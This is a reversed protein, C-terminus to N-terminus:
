QTIRVALRSTWPDMRTVSAPSFERSERILSFYRSTFLVSTEASERASNTLLVGLMTLRPLQSSNESKSSSIGGVRVSIEVLLKLRSVFTFIEAQTERVLSWRLIVFLESFIWVTPM